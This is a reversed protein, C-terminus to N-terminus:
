CLSVARSLQFARISLAKSVPTGIPVSIPGTKPEFHSSPIYHYFDELSLMLSYFLLAKWRNYISSTIADRQRTIVTCSSFTTYTKLISGPYVCRTQTMDAYLVCVTRTAYDGNFLMSM